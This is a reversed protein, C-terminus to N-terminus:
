RRGTEAAVTELFTEVRAVCTDWSWRDAANLRGQRGLEEAQAPNALLQQIAAAFQSTDREVLLGTIGHLVTERIGGERVGVVPTGCAMSELPVFGFPEMLPAYLTLRARNYLQVLEEDSVPTRLTLRVAVQGALEVLYQREAPDCFNGVIILGPRQAAEIRALSHLLFDFGKRPYIAGVSLVHNEKPIGLPRFLNTDVGLYCTKALLGYIRYLAERSFDSNVLVLSSALVSQRDQRALMRDYLAPLPDLRAAIRQLGSRQMGPRPVPPEYLHRPPEQCYYVSPTRLFQLLAPAQAYRCPHVFVVDYGAADIQGAINRQLAQLRLLDGARILPNLRGFPSRCLPWPQFPFAVHQRCFPRIDSFDHEACSLTYADVEHRGALRRTMEGLARKAGGSPLNHYLAIRM